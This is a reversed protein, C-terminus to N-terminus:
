EFQEVTKYDISFPIQMPMLEQKCRNIVSVTNGPAVAHKKLIDQLIDVLQNVIKYFMILKLSSRRIQLPQWSLRNLMDTVSSYQYYNNLVFGQQVDKFLKLKISTVYLTYISVMCVTSCYDM